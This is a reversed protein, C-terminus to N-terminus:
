RTQMIKAANVLMEKFLEEDLKTIMRANPKEEGLHDVVIQGRTKTGFLEVTVHMERSAVIISPNLFAAVVFADCPDWININTLTILKEAMTLLDMFPSRIAALEEFRWIQFAHFESLQVLSLNRFFM